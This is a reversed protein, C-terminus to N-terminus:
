AEKKKDKKFNMVLLSVLAVIIILSNFAYVAPSPAKKTHAYVWMSVNKFEQGATFYSIVFDDISMTFAMLAGGFIGVKIAPIIVKVIAQLRTCGLDLAAEYINKDLKKLKPMVSLVVYPISFFVHALLVTHMGLSIPLLMLILSLSVATVIDPNVVPINNLVMMKTRAKKSLANIGISIFTGLITSIITSLIAVLLTNKIAVLLHRNKLIEPYWKLSFGSFAATKSGNVSYLLIMFIPFYVIAFSLITLILGIHKAYKKMM